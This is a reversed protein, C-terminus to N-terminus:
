LPVIFSMASAEDTIPDRYDVTHVLGRVQTGDPRRYTAEFTARRRGARLNEIHGRWIEANIEVPVLERLDIGIVDSSTGSGRRM